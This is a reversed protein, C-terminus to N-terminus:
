MYKLPQGTYPLSLEEKGTGVKSGMVWELKKQQGQKKALYPGTYRKSHSEMSMLGWLGSGGDLAPPSMRVMRIADRITRTTPHMAEFLPLVRELCDAGFARQLQICMGKSHEYMWFQANKRELNLWQSPDELLFISYLPSAMAELPHFRATQYWIGPPCHPDSLITAAAKATSPEQYSLHSM